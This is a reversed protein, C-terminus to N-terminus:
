HPSTVTRAQEIVTRLADADRREPTKETGALRDDRM